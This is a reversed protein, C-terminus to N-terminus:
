SQYIEHVQQSKSHVQEKNAPQTKPFIVDSVNEIKPTLEWTLSINRIQKLLYLGPHVFEDNADVKSPFKEAIKDILANLAVSSSSLM